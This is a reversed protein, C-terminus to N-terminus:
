EQGDVDVMYYYAGDPYYHNDATAAPEQSGDDSRLM